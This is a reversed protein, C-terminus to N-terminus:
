DAGSEVFQVDSNNGSKELIVLDEIEQM